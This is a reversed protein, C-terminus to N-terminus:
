DRKFLRQLLPKPRSAPTSVSPESPAAQTTKKPEPQPVPAPKAPEASANNKPKTLKASDPPTQQATSAPATPLKYNPDYQYGSNGSPVSDNGGFVRALLPKPKPGTLSPDILSPDSAARVSAGPIRYQSLVLETPPATFYDTTLRITPDNQDLDNFSFPPLLTFSSQRLEAVSTAHNLRAAVEQLLSNTLNQEAFIIDVATATGGQMKQREVNLGEAFRKTAEALNRGQLTSNIVKQFSLAVQTALERRARDELLRTKTTAVEASLLAGRRARNEFPWELGGRVFFSPGIHNSGWVGFAGELGTQQNYGSFDGGFDLTLDPKLDRRAQEQLILNANSIYRFAVLNPHYGLTHKVIPLAGMSRLNEISSLPPLPDAALPAVYVDEPNLGITIALAQQAVALEIEGAFRAAVAQLQRAETQSKEAAPLLGGEIMQLAVTTSALTELESLYLRELREQSAALNWYAQVTALTQRSAEDRALERKAGIDQSLAREQALFPDALGLKTLNFGIDVGIASRNIRPDGARTQLATEFSDVKAFLRARPGGRFRRLLALEYNQTETRSHIWPPTTQLSRLAGDRMRRFLEQQALVAKTALKSAQDANPINVNGSLLKIIADIQADRFNELDTIGQETNNQNSGGNLASNSDTIPTGDLDFEDAPLKGTRVDEIRQLMINGTNFLERLAQYDARAKDKESDTLEQTRNKYDYFATLRHDFNGQISTVSAQAAHVDQVALKITPNQALTMRVADILTIKRETLSQFSTEALQEAKAVRTQRQAEFSPDATLKPAALLPPPTGPVLDLKQDAPVPQGVLTAQADQMARSIEPDLDGTGMPPPAPPLPPNPTVGGPASPNPPTPIVPTVAQQQAPKKANDKSPPRVINLPDGKLGLIDLVRDGASSKSDQSLATDSGAGILAIIVFLAFKLSLKM